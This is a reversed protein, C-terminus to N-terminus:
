EHTRHEPSPASSVCERLSLGREVRRLVSLRGCLDHELREVHLTEVDSDLSDESECSTPATRFDGVPSKSSSDNIRSITDRVNDGDYTM